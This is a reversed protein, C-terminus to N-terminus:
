RPAPPTTLAVPITREGALHQARLLARKWAEPEGTAHFAAVQLLASDFDEDAWVAIRGALAAAEGARDHALLWRAQADAALAITDPVGKAEATAAAEHFLREADGDANRQAAWEAEALLRYVALSEDDAPEIAAIDAAQPQGAAISARQRLLAVRALQDADTNSERPWAALASATATLTDGVRGQQWALEARAQERFRTMDAPVNADDREALALAAQADAHRGLAVLVIARYGETAIRMGPNGIRDYLAHLRESTALADSWRLLRMQAHLVASLNYRLSNVTGFSESIEAAANFYRLAEAVRQRVFELQGLYNNMEGLSQRDGAIELESRARGLDLAAEDFRHLMVRAVGREALAKGLDTPTGKDGLATVAADFDREADSWNAGRDLEIWGRTRLTRSRLSPANALAPDALLAEVTAHADDLKGSHYDVRALEYRLEPEGRMAAPAGALISRATELEGSLMAARARQVRESLAEDNSGDDSTPRGLAALLLDASQRATDIVEAREVEVHQRMGGDEANTTLEIKWGGASREATGQVLVDAGLTRRLAAIREAQPLTASAHLAAVVSDSPPVALGAQRLRTAILDMAGLRIWAANADETASVDLPLVVTTRAAGRSPSVNARRSAGIYIFAVALCLAAVLLGAVIRRPSVADRAVPERATVTREEDRTEAVAPEVSPAPENTAERLEETAMIWRYGFGSVTRVTRQANSDDGVARRVQMVLQSVQANAVDVRGWLAAILEDHGVARDRHEVLYALGDFVRRPLPVLEGDKRLERAAPDLRYDAFRYARATM